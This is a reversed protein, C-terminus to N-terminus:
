GDQLSIQTDLNACKKATLKCVPIILGQVRNRKRHTPINLIAVM